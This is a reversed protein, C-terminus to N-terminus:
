RDPLPDPARYLLLLGLAFFGGISLVAWRQDGGAAESVNGFVFPGLVASARGAFAMFGFYEGSASPPAIQGM